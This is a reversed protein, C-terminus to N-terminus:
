RSHRAPLCADRIHTSVIADFIKQANEALVYSHLGAIGMTECSQLLGSRHLLPMLEEGWQELTPSTMRERLKRWMSQDDQALMLEGSRDLLAVHQVHRSWGHVALRTNCIAPAVPPMLELHNGKGPLIMRLEMAGRPDTFAGMLAHAGSDSTCAAELYLIRRLPSVILATVSAEVHAITESKTNSVIAELSPLETSDLLALGLPPHVEAARADSQRRRVARRQPPELIATM